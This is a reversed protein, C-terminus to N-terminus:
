TAFPWVIAFATKGPSLKQLQIDTINDMPFRYEASIRNGYVDNLERGSLDKATMLGYIAEHDVRTAKIIENKGLNASRGENLILKYKKGPIIKTPLETKPDVGPTLVATYNYCATLVQTAVVLIISIIVREM